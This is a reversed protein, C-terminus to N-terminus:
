HCVPLNLAGTLGCVTGNLDLPPVPTRPPSVPEQPTQPAAPTENSPGGPSPGPLGSSPSNNGSGAVVEKSAALNCKLGAKQVIECAQTPTVTRAFSNRSQQCKASNPGNELCPNGHEIVTVRKGITDIKSTNRVAIVTAALVVFALFAVLPWNVREWDVKVM